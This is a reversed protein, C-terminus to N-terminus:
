VRLVTAKVSTGVVELRAMADITIEVLHGFKELFFFTHVNRMGEYTDSMAGSKSVDQYLISMKVIFVCVCILNFHRSSVIM